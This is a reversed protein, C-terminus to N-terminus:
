DTEVFKNLSMELDLLAETIVFATILSALENPFAVFLNFEKLPWVHQQHM